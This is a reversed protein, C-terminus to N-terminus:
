AEIASCASSAFYRVYSFRRRLHNTPLRGAGNQREALNKLKASIRRLEKGRATDLKRLQTELIASKELARFGALRPSVIGSWSIM